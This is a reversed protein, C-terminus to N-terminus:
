IYDIVTGASAFYLFASFCLLGILILSGTFYFFSMIFVESRRTSYHKWHYRLVLTFIGWAALLIATVAFILLPTVPIHIGFEGASFPLIM